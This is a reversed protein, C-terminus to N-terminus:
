HEELAIKLEDRLFPIIKEGFTDVLSQAQTRLLERQEEPSIEANLLTSHALASLAHGYHPEIDNFEGQDKKQYFTRLFEENEPVITVPLRIDRTELRRILKETM